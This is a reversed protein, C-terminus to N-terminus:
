DGGAQKDSQGNRKEEIIELALQLGFCIMEGNIRINAYHYKGNEKMESITKKIESVISDLCPEPQASPLVQVVENKVKEVAEQIQEDSLTVKAVCVTKSQASPLMALESVAEGKDILIYAPTVEIVRCKRVADIAAQRSITDGVNTDPVDKERRKKLEKLWAALQRHEIECKINGDTVACRDAVEEAHIIAEEMTM